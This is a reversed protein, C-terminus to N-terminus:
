FDLLDKVKVKLATAFRMLNYVSINKEGREIMGVYTRHMKIERGLEEQTLNMSERLDRIKKGLFVLFQKNQAM